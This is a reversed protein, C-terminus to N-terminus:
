HLWNEVRLNPVRAFEDYNDTVVTAGLALAHAAILMDNAGIVKGSRELHTRVAAYHTAVGTNLPYIHLSAIATKYAATRKAVPTKTLGFQLECDVVVSTCVIADPIQSLLESLRKAARGAPYQMLDSIINTDLLWLAGKATDTTM